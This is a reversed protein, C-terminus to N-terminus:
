LRCLRGNSISYSENNYIFHIYDVGEEGFVVHKGIEFPVRCDLEARSLLDKFMQTGIHTVSTADTLYNNCPLDIVRLGEKTIYVQELMIIFLLNPLNVEETISLEAQLGTCADILEQTSYAEPPCTVKVFKKLKPFSIGYGSGRKLCERTCSMIGNLSMKNRIGDCISKVIISSRMCQKMTIIM